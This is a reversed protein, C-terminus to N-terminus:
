GSGPYASYIQGVVKGKQKRTWKKKEIGCEVRQFILIDQTEQILNNNPKRLGNQLNQKIIIQHARLLKLEYKNKLITTNQRQLHFPLREVTPQRYHIDFHFIRWCAQTTIIYICDAYKKIENNYTTTASLKM